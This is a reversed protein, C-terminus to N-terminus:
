HGAHIHLDTPCCQAHPVVGERREYWRQTTNVVRVAVLMVPVEILVGVVTALADGLNGYMVYVGLDTLRGLLMM